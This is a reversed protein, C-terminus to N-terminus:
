DTEGRLLKDIEPKYTRSVEFVQGNNLTIKGGYYKQIKFIAIAQNYNVRIFHTAPLEQLIGALSGSVSIKKTGAHVSVNSGSVELWEIEAITLKEAIGTDQDKFKLTEFLLAAGASGPQEFYYTALRLCAIDVAEMFREYSFPKLLFDDVKHDFGDKGYEIYSTTIIIRTRPHNEKAAEIIALGSIEPMDIDVFLLDPKLRLIAEKAAVPHDFDAILKLVATRLIAKKLRKLAGKNDELAICTVPM